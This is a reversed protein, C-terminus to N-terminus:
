GVVVELTEVVIGLIRRLEAPEMVLSPQLNLSTTSSDGIVGRALLARALEEQLEPARELTERNLVLELAIFAGVVRVAGVREFREPLGGLVAIAVRELERVNALVAGDALREITALAAACSAPLWSWTSGTSLDDFGGLARESGLVAGIPMVGGGMAKGVCLLDPRLDWREAAFMTGTRGFGTKVEDLCLLWGFEDCLATLAPWFTAPPELVGGSGVVPEIVVGAVERPDVSHFLVHDRLYDVTADGSGGPRPPGFPSRYPHPYPVHTFGPVLARAGAAIEHHEAGLAATVSSEGHYGSHFGIIMPRGTARRMVRIAIEIAETGNLAIDVRTLSPPALALLQEALPAVLATTLAHTDESGYRALAAAAAAVIEAPAAGFPVSASASALDAYVNGDVDQVTWGVKRDVVFPFAGHTLGPYLVREQRELLERSRPGPPPTVMHPVQTM